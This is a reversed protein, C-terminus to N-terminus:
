QTCGVSYSAPTAAATCVLAQLTDGSVQVYTKPSDASVAPMHALRYGIGITDVLVTPPLVPLELHANLQQSPSAATSLM